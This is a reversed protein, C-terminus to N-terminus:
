FVLRRRVGVLNHGALAALDRITDGVLDKFILREIDLVAQSIEMPRDRWGDIADGALDKRLARCIMDFVDVATDLERIRRFESWIQHLPPRDNATFPPSQVVKWPPLQRNRHLIEAITDFILKRQLTSAKSIDNGKLYQQKELLLFIDAEPPLHDFARLIESIYVFDCDDSEHEGKSQITWILPNWDDEDLEGLQDKFDINRKMVPSPSPSDDKDFSPDLVSVPSPRSETATMETISHLLKGCRELLRRGGQYEEETSRETGHPSSASTSSESISSSEDGAVVRIKDKPSIDAMPKVYRRGPAAITQAPVIRKPSLRPPQVPSARRQELPMSDNAKRALLNPSKVNSERRTPSSSNGPRAQNRTNRDIEPRERRPSVTQTCEGTNNLSRRLGARSRLASPPSDKGLRTNISSVESRSPSMVVIPSEVSSFNREYVFNRQSIPALSKKSHLLGKLQMVELIQKLTELDKSSEDIGRMKLRKEIEGCFTVKHKQEPFFDGSDFFSKRQQLSKRPSAGIGSYLPKVSGIEANRRSYEVPDARSANWSTSTNKMGANDRVVNRSVHNSEGSYLQNQQKLRSNNGDTLRNQFLDRSVRSESASRRLEAPKSPEHSSNPLQELGMLRAIVSPSRRQDDGDAGRGEGSSESHSASTVAADTRVERRHLSGKADTTARSDLSLRPAEKCFKWSPRAGEKLEFTPLPHPLKGLETAATVCQPLPSRIEPLPSSPRLCERSPSSIAGTQSPKGSERSIAPSSVSKDSDMSSNSEAPPPLRKTASLKKGNLIQQRDFIQFFGGMCGMQKKEVNHHHSIGTAM